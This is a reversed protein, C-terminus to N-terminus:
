LAQAPDLSVLERLLSTAYAGAPLTFELLVSQEDIFEVRSQTVTARLARRTATLGAEELGQALSQWPEILSRELSNIEAGRGWLPGSTHIDSQTLRVNVDAEGAYRFFSRSGDLVLWEDDAPILWNGANIRAALVQNFLFGRAASLYLGRQHRSVRQRRKSNNGGFLALAKAVNAAGHGFRQEGFYNPFGSGFIQQARREFEATNGAFNRLTILFRNSKHTGTRLKRHHRTTALVRIGAGLPESQTDLDLSLSAKGPLHVSFWQTTIASRDKLGFYGIDVPKVKLVQQLRQVVDITNLSNKEVQLCLHDGEGSFDFGPIEDVRFDAPSQRMVGSALVNGLIRPQASIIQQWQFTRSDTLPGVAVARYGAM